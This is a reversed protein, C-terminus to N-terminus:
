LKKTMQWRGTQTQDTTDMPRTTFTGSITNGQREGVFRTQVQVKSQPEFYPGMVGVIKGDDAADVQRLPVTAAKAPDSANFVVQGVAYRSGQSLEFQIVGKSGPSTGEVTGEWTGALSMLSADSGTVPVSAWMGAGCGTVVLAVALLAGARM